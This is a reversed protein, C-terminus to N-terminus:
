RATEGGAAGGQLMPIYHRLASAHLPKTMADASIGAAIESPSGPIHFIRVTGDQVCQTTYMEDIHFHKQRPVFKRIPSGSTSVTSLSDLEMTIPLGDYVQLFKLLNKVYSAHKAANCSHHTEAHTTSTCVRQSKQSKWYSPMRDLGGVYGGQSRRDSIDDAFSSDSQIYFHPFTKGWVYEKAPAITIGIATNGRLYRYVRKLCQLSETCPAHMVRGLNSHAFAISPGVQKAIWGITSVHRAYFQTADDYNRIEGGTASVAHKGFLKNLQDVVEQREGDTKPCMEKHLIMTAPTPSPNCESMGVSELANEVYQQMNAVMSRGNGYTFQIGLCTEAQSTNLTQEGGTIQMSSSIWNRFQNFADTSIAKSVYARINDNNIWLVFCHGHFPSSQPFQARFIVPQTPSQIFDIPCPSETSSDHSNLLRDHLGRALAFGSAPHGYLAQIIQVNYIRHDSDYVPMCPIASAIVPHGDPQTPMKENCYAQVLDIEFCDLDYLARLSELLYLDGIPAAGTYSEIYHQGQTLGWGAICLRAKFKILENGNWKVKFVWKFRLQRGSSQTHTFKFTPDRFSPRLHGHVERLMADLWYLAYESSLAQNANDPTSISKGTFDPLILSPLEQEGSILAPIIQFDASVYQRITSHVSLDTARASVLVKRVEMPAVDSVPHTYESGDIQYAVDYSNQDDSIGTVTADYRQNETPWLINVNDGTHIISGDVGQFSNGPTGNNEPSDRSAMSDNHSTIAGGCGTTSRLQPDQSDSNIDITTLETAADSRNTIFQVDSTVMISGNPLLMVCKRDLTDLLLGVTARSALQKHQARRQPSDSQITITGPCGWSAPITRRAQDYSAKGDLMFKAARDQKAGYTLAYDWYKNVDHRYKTFSSSALQINARMRQQSRANAGEAIGQSGSAKKYPTSTSQIIGAQDCMAKFDGLYETGNDTCITIGSNLMHTGATIGADRLFQKFGKVSSAASHDTAVTVYHEAPNSKVTWTQAVTNGAASKPFTNGITDGVITIGPQAEVSAGSAKKIPRSRQNAIRMQTDLQTKLSYNRLSIGAKNAIAVAREHSPNGLQSRFENYDVSQMTSTRAALIKAHAPPLRWISGIRECPVPAGNRPVLYLQNNSAAADVITSIGLNGLSDTAVLNFKSESCYYTPQEYIQGAIQIRRIGRHSAATLSGSVGSIIPATAPDLQEIHSLGDLSNAMNCDAACDIYMSDDPTISESDMSEASVLATKYPVFHGSDNKFYLEQRGADNSSDLPRSNRPKNRCDRSQHMCWGHTDCWQSDESPPGGARDMNRERFEKRKKRGRDGVAALARIAGVTIMQSDKMQSILTHLSEHSEPQGIGSHASLKPDSDFRNAQMMAKSQLDHLTCVGYYLVHEQQFLPPMQMTFKSCALGETFPYAPDGIMEAQRVFSTLEDIASSVQQTWTKGSKDPWSWSSIQDHLQKGTLNSSAEKAYLAFAAWLKPPDVQTIRANAGVSENYKKVISVYNNESVASKLTHHVLAVSAQKKYAVLQASGVPEPFIDDENLESLVFLAHKAILFQTLQKRFERFAGPSADWTPPKAANTVESDSM